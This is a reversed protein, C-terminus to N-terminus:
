AAPVATDFRALAKTTITTLFDVDAGFVASQTFQLLVLGRQIIVLNLEFEVGQVKGSASYAFSDDGMKPFSLESVKLNVKEKDAQITLTSCGRIITAYEALQSKLDAVDSYAKLEEDIEDSQKEFDAEAKIKSDPHAKDFAELKDGCDGSAKSNSDSAPTTKWGTPFDQVTLLAARLTAASPPQPGSPSPSSSPAAAASSGDSQPQAKSGGSSGGCSTVAVVGLLASM